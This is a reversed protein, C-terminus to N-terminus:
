SKRGFFSLINFIRQRFQPSFCQLLRVKFSAIRTLITRHYMKKSPFLSIAVGPSSIPVAKIIIQYVESYQCGMLTDQLASPIKSWSGALETEEPLKTVYRAEVIKLQAKAFLNEINKLGFFRIHTRDLLGWNQYEFDGNILCSIVAAHGVHPLSVVIFGEPNVFAIMRQLASWPDYLHELVDAALVVDFKACGDLLTPWRNSNLDAQMVKECYPKVLEIAESDLELATVRCGSKEAIIKTIAGPGCGLELVRKNQGVMRIVNAPATESSTDVEYEYNHRKMRM